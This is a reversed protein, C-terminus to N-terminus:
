SGKGQLDGKRQTVGRENKDRRRLSCCMASSLTGVDLEGIGRSLKPTKVDAQHTSTTWGKGELGNAFRGRQLKKIEEMTVDEKEKVKRPNM